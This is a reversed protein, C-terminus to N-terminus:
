KRPTFIDIVYLREPLEPVAARLKKEAQNYRREFAPVKERLRNVTRAWSMTENFFKRYIGLYRVMKRGKERPYITRCSNSDECVEFICTNNILTTSSEDPGLDSLPLRPADLAIGYKYLIRDAERSQANSVRPKRKNDRADALLIVPPSLLDIFTSEVKTVAKSWTENKDRVIVGDYNGAWDPNSALEEVLTLCKTMTPNTEPLAACTSTHGLWLAALATFQLATFRKM